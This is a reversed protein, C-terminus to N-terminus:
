ISLVEQNNSSGRSGVRKRRRKKGWETIGDREGLILLNLAYM